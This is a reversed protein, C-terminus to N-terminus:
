GNPCEHIYNQYATQLADYASNVADAFSQCRPRDYGSPECAHDADAAQQLTAQARTFQNRAKECPTKVGGSTTLTANPDLVALDHVMVTILQTPSISLAQNTGVVNGGVLAQKAAGVVAPREVPMEDHALENGDSDYASRVLTFGTPSMVADLSVLLAGDQTLGQTRTGTSGAQLSWTAVNTQARTDASAPLDQEYQMPEGGAAGDAGACGVAVIAIGCLDMWGLSRM